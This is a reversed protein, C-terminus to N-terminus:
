ASPDALQWRVIRFGHQVAAQLRAPDLRGDPGRPIGVFAHVRPNEAAMEALLREIEAPDSALEPRALVDRGRLRIRVPTGERLNLKWKGGGPTLLANGQRVYSLPQRYVKGTKRGTIWVLMLRKSLPTAFPLGLVRRMPVNIVNMMRAQLRRGLPRKSSEAM